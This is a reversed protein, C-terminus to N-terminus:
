LPKEFEAELKKILKARRKNSADMKKELLFRRLLLTFAQWYLSTRSRTPKDSKNQRSNDNQTEFYTM